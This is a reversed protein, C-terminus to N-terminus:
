AYKMRDGLLELQRKLTGDIVRDGVKLKIGAILSPDVSTKLRITYGTARSLKQTLAELEEPAIAAAAYLETDKIHEAKDQLALFEGCIMDLYGERRKDVLLNMFDQVLGSVRGSFILQLTEKKEVTRILFNDLYATLEPTTQLLERVSSLQASVEATRQNEQALDFLAEAYRQAVGRNLM